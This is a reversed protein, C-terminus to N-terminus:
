AEDMCEKVAEALATIPFPKALTKVAGVKQAIALYAELRNRGGGSRAIIKVAPNVRRLAGILEIGEVDPMILDTLVLGVAEPNYRQLAERGNRARIVVHGLTALAQHLMGAFLEDDDVLLISAM